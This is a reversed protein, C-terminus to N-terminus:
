SNQEEPLLNPAYIRVFAVDHSKVANLRSQYKRLVRELKDLTLDEDDEVVAVKTEWAASLSHMIKSM